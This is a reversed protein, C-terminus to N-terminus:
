LRINQQNQSAVSPQYVIVSSHCRAVATCRGAESHPHLLDPQMRLSLLGEVTLAGALLNPNGLIHKDM